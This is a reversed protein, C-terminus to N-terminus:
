AMCTKLADEGKFHLAQTAPASAAQTVVATTEIGVSFSLSLPVLRTLAAPSLTFLRCFSYVIYWTLLLVNGGQESRGYREM